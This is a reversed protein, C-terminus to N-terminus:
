NEKIATSIERMANLTKSDLSKVTVITDIDDKLKLQDCGDCSNIIDSYKDSLTQTNNLYDTLSPTVKVLTDSSNPSVKKELRALYHNAALASYREFSKAKAQYMKYEESGQPYSKAINVYLDIMNNIDSSFDILSKSAQESAYSNFQTIKKADSDTQLDIGFQWDDNVRWHRKLQNYSKRYVSIQRHQYVYEYERPPVFSCQKVELLLENDNLQYGNVENDLELIYKKNTTETPECSELVLQCESVMSFDGSRTCVIDTVKGNQTKTVQLSVGRLPHKSEPNFPDIHVTRVDVQTVASEPAIDTSMIPLSLIAVGIIVWQTNLLMKRTTGM